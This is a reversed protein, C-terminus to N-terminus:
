STVAREPRPHASFRPARILAMSVWVGGSFYLTMWGFEPRWHTWRRTVIRRDHADRIGEAVTLYRTGRAEDARWRRAYMPVDVFWMYLVYAGSLTIAMEIWRRQPGRYRRRLLVFSILMLSFTLSWLSEELVSGISNTTLAAYWSCVEALAILPVMMRAAQRAFGVGAARAAARLVLAWQAVLSLEAVTAAARGIFASSLWSDYMVFRLGDVRPLVSRFACVAVFIASLVVQSRPGSDGQRRARLALISWAVVNGVSIVALTMWWAIVFM